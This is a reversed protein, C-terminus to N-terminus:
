NFVMSYSVVIQNEIWSVLVIKDRKLGFLYLGDAVSM